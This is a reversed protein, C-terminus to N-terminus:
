WLENIFDVFFFNIGIINIDHFGLYIYNLGGFSTPLKITNAVNRIIIRRKLGSSCFSLPAITIVRQGDDM